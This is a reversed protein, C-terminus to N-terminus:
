KSDGDFPELPKSLWNWTEVEARKKEIEPVQYLAKGFRLYNVLVGDDLDIGIQRSALPYLVDHEYEDLELLVKRIRKVEKSAKAKDRPSADIAVSLLEQKQLEGQLKAQFERLYDNLVTSVTSPTYRHLYVMANFSGDSSSFMWYIPRKRYRQLHDKYFDKLFYTRISKPKDPTGLSEEILRFNEEFHQAGFTAKLFKRFRSVIDDPFWEGDTIPVVNDPDPMFSPTPVRELFEQLGEELDALVVGSAQASYRGFMCGVAYSIFARVRIGDFDAMAEQSLLTVNFENSVGDSLGYCSRILEDNERELAQAESVLGSWRNIDSSLASQVRQSTSGQVTADSGFDRATESTNWDLRHIDVLRTVNRELAGRIGNGVDQPLPIERLPGVNFDLTAGMFELLESVVTSNYVALILCADSWSTPFACAGKASFTSGEGVWRAGFDGGLASWTISAKFYRDKSPLKNGLRALETYNAPDFAVVYEDNGFWKRWSGGKQYPAFKYGAAHFEETSSSDPGITSRNVEWWYRMFRENNGTQFGQRVPSIDEVRRGSTFVSRLLPTTWYAFPAGPIELFAETSTIFWDEGEHSNVLAKLKNPKDQGDVNSLRVFVSPMTSHGNRAVFAVTSVVEGAISEFAQTGLHVLSKFDCHALMERRFAEYRGLYMWSQMTIMAVYAHPLSLARSREIFMAFLDNKSLPFRRKAFDLLEEGMNKSGMYPPNAVVVHYRNSLFDTQILVRQAREQTGWLTERLAELRNRRESSRQGNDLPLILSGFVDAQQFQNWFFEEDVRDLNPDAFEDLESKSFRIPQLVCINPAVGKAFFSRQKARAKMVLAFAALSGAREDIETGYLNNTLIFGPIESPSYGEEEYISYLLDFAYTLMHGSGCAPDLIKLEEPSSVRLFDTEKHIPRIYYEMADGLHSDPRNLMWLRGLSNQVLYQVIWDPTFLQTAAPIEAAGAKNNKFDAFVEDKRDSIYFQYLWGIVEVDECDEETLMRTTKTLASGEALLGAPMLLETYDGKGQFMFPMNKHWHRCYATLLQGYAEGQPDPSKLVGNLLGTVRDITRQDVVSTDFHGRKADALIEPQGTELGRQPSVVGAATYGNSDMFRLAIIRNFWTYAVQEAVLNRGSSGDGHERIARELTRITEPSEVRASSSPALAVQLRATVEAILQTRASTAFSRLKTTDM